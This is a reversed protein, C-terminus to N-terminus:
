LKVEKLYICADSTFLEPTPRSAIVIYTKDPDLAEMDDWIITPGPLNGASKLLASEYAKVTQEHREILQSKIKDLKEEISVM